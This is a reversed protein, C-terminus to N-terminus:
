KTIQIKLNSSILKLTLGIKWDDIPLNDKVYFDCVNFKGDYKINM